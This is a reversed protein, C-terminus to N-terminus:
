GLPIGVNNKTQFRPDSVSISPYSCIQGREGAGEPEGSVKVQGERGALGCEAQISSMSVGAVEM